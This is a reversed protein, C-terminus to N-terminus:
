AACKVHKQSNTASCVLYMKNSYLSFNKGSATRRSHEVFNNNGPAKGATNRDPLACSLQSRNPIQNNKPESTRPKPPTPKCNAEVVPKPKTTSPLPRVPQTSKASSHLAENKIITKPEAVLSGDPEVSSLIECM